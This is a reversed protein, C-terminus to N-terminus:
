VFRAVAFAATLLGAFFLTGLSAALTNVINNGILVTSILSDYDEALALAKEARKNGKEALNKVRIRNFTSFATETASFYASLIVSIVIIILYTVLHPEM